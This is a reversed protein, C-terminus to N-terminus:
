TAVHQSVDQETGEDDDEQEDDHDHECDHDHDHGRAVKAKGNGGPGKKAAEAARKKAIAEEKHPCAKRWHKATEPPKGLLLCHTCEGDSPKWERTDWPKEDGPPAAASAGPAAPAKRPDNGRPTYGRAALAKGRFKRAEQISDAELTEFTSKIVATTLPLNGVASKIQMRTDLKNEIIPGFQNAAKLLKRAIVPPTYGAKLDVPLTKILRNLASKFANLAAVTPEAIGADILEEIEITVSNGFGGTDGALYTALRADLDLILQRGGGGCAEKLEFSTDEDEICSLIYECIRTDMSEIAEPGLYHHKFEPMAEFAALEEPTKVPIGTTDSDTPLILCPKRWTGKVILNHRYRNRHNTSAFCLYHKERVFGREILHRAEPFVSPLHRELDSAFAALLNDSTDWSPKDTTDHNDAVPQREETKTKSPM